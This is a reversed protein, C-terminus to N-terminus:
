TEDTRRLPVFGSTDVRPVPGSGKTSRRHPAIAGLRRRSGILLMGVTMLVVAWAVLAAVDAGTTPLSVTGSQAAAGFSDVVMVPDDLQARGDGFDVIVSHQGAGISDPLTASIAYSGDDAATTSGLFVPNSAIFADIREHALACNAPGSLVIHGHILVEIRGNVDRVNGSVSLCVTPMPTPPYTQAHAAPAISALAAILLSSCVTSRVTRGRRRLM